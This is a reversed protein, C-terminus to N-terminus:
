RVAEAIVGRLEDLGDGDISSWPVVGDLPVDLGRALAAVQGPRRARPVLDIKTAVVLFPREMDRLGEVLVRDAEQAPHRADALAVVLRLVERRALYSEVLGKWARRQGKGVKAFGYGPLDVAMWTGGVDFFNLAQTRGPTKSVRALGQHGLLANIASSKGVNSRGAFAVEPLSEAPPQTPFSGVFRVPAHFLSRV